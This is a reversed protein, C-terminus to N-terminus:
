PQPLCEIVQTMRGTRLWTGSTKFTTAMIVEKLFKNKGSHLLEEVERWDRITKRRGPRTNTNIEM